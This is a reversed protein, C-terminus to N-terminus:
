QSEVFEIAKMADPSFDHGTENETAKMEADQPSNVESVQLRGAGKNSVLAPKWPLHM